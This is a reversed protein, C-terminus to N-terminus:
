RVSIKATTLGAEHNILVQYAGPTLARLPIEVNSILGEWRLMETGIMNCVRILSIPTREEVHLIGNRVVPNPFVSATSVRSEPVSSSTIDVFADMHLDVGLPNGLYNYYGDLLAPKYDVLDLSVMVDSRSGSSAARDFQREGLMWFTSSFEDASIQVPLIMVHFDSPVKVHPMPITVWFVKQETLGELDLELQALEGAETAYHLDTGSSNIVTDRYVVVLLKDGDVSDFHVRVSDLYAFNNPHTFRQGLGVAVVSGNLFPVELSVTPRTSDYYSLQINEVLPSSPQAESDRSALLVLIAILLSKMLSRFFLSAIGGKM